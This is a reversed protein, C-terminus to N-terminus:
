NSRDKNKIRSEAILRTKKPHSVLVDYGHSTLKRYIPAVVLSAEMIAVKAPRRHRELFDLLSDDTVKKTEILKGMQDIVAAHAMGNKHLDLGCFLTSANMIRM